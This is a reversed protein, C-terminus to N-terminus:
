SPSREKSEFSQQAFRRGTEALQLLRSHVKGNVSEQPFRGDVLEGASLGTLIEIGQDITKVAYIHFRGNEVAEIVDRRLMLHQVNADPILVGQEGSLGKARCVDFFGEIKENAGGIPQVRGYQDVSGTVALSQKVPVESIASLLAYLEASSASDGEIGGYSQEFVLSASLSLPNDVAYRGGLFGTLILVGKSHIPGGMAVEREIDIVEGKGLRVRATIRSPRGFSFDGLGIVSLGNIQGVRAGQTDILVIDREIQEQMRERLRDSRYVWAEVAQDVDQATVVSRENRTAWYESERLLDTMNQLQLSLKRTDGATRSAREIVRAVADRSFPRLDAKRVASAILRAYEHQNRPNRDMQHDFDAPIKFLEGFEPDYQRLLYYIMPSGILVVKIDLPLGEPELSITSVLSYMQGLSEIKVQGSHLTRKLGEWAFPDRVVKLADLILYGGNARHLAGPRIMNFDTILAGMQALHEVRGFLNQYTPNEEHIVPAGSKKSNDVLVNVQYQRAVAAEPDQGESQGSAGVMAMLQQMQPNARERDPFLNRVHEVIDNRVEEIYTTVAAQGEYKQKIENVLPDITYETVQRNFAKQKEGAERQWQPVRQSLRQAEKQLEEAHEEIRRRDEPPLANFDEPSLAEDNRAPAFALGGPTRMALLGYKGARERLQEFAEKQKEQFEHAIAQSRTQYEENEFAARMANRINEILDNMDQALEKGRGPKLTLLRPKHREEFNNVYCIDPPVEAQRAQEKLFSSIFTHKGTGNEGLAFINYGDRRIGIGLTLAEQARPQGIFLPLASREDFDDTTTFPLEDLRCHQYLQDPKLESPHM